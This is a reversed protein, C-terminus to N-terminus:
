GAAVNSDLEQSGPYLKPHGILSSRPNTLYSLISAEAFDHILPRQMDAAFNTALYMSRNSPPLGEHVHGSRLDYIRTLLQKRLSAPSKTGRKIDFADEFNSHAAIVDLDSAIADLYFDTFRAALRKDRWNTSPVTLSEAAVVYLVSAVSDRGQRMAADFTILASRLRSFVDFGGPQPVFAVIDLAVGKRALTLISTDSKLQSYKGVVPDKAPAVMPPANVPRGLAFTCIAAITEVASHAVFDSFFGAQPGPVALHVDVIAPPALLPSEPNGDQSPGERFELLVSPGLRRWGAIRVQTGLRLILPTIGGLASFLNLEAENLGFSYWVEGGLDNAAVRKAALAAAKKVLEVDQPLSAVFALYPPDDVFSAVVDRGAGNGFTLQNSNQGRQSLSLGGIKAFHV